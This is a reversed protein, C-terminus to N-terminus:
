ATTLVSVALRSCEGGHSFVRLLCSILSFVRLCALVSAAVIALVSAPFRSCERYFPCSCRGSYSFVRPLLIPLFVQRFVLVSTIGFHALVSAPFRSCECDFHSLLPQGAGLHSRPCGWSPLCLRCGESSPHPNTGGHAAAGFPAAARLILVSLGCGESSPHSSEPFIPIPRAPFNKTANSM